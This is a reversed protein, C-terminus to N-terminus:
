YHCKQCETGGIMFVTVSDIKGSKLEDHYKEYMSYFGNDKFQVKTTRHCNICWGMTLPAFQKVENMNQIEGHCTQCAVQGVKVHQSHNFYVHDPLNHIRTWAIPKAKSADWNTGDKSPDYGAYAYLKQIEATGNIDNGEEDKLPAGTYEKIAKHCNMCINVAPITAQKGQYVGIHCYQCNIQNVGAHVKHSYFIPQKPEYNQYHGLGIANKALCYGFGLFVIVVLFVLVSKKRYWPTPTQLQPEGAKKEAVRKLNTNVQILILVVIALVVTIIGYFLSNDSGDGQASADAAGGAGNDAKPQPATKIYDLIADIQKTDLTGQFATMSVKGYQNFLNNAYKNGSKLVAASNLVWSHIDARSPWRDEVGRLAPGTLVKDLAHCSACNAQFLAKGDQAFLSSSSLLLVLSLVVGFKSIFNKFHIM